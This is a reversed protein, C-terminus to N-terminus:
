ASAPEHAALYDDFDAVKQTDEFVTVATLKGWAMKGFLVGENRYIVEGDRNAWYDTFHVCVTTNWPGGRVLIEEPELQLGVGVFRHLWEAIQDKRHYDAAWSSGGPFRFHADDAYRAITPEINGARGQAIVRRLLVKVLWAYV